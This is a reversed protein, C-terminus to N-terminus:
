ARRSCPEASPGELMEDVAGFAGGRMVVVSGCGSSAGDEGYGAPGVSAAPPSGAVGDLTADNLRGAM